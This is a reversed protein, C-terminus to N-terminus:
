CGQLFRKGENVNYSKKGHLLRYNDMMLFESNLLEGCEHSSIANIKYNQNNCNFIINSNNVVIKMYIKPDNM